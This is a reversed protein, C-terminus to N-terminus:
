VAGGNQRLGDAIETLTAIQKHTLWSRRAINAIFGQEWHSLRAVHQRCLELDSRWGTASSQPIARPSGDAIVQEWTLGSTRLMRSALLGGAAREGDADSGLRGLIGILRKREVPNM